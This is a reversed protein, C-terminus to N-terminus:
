RPWAFRWTVPGVVQAALVVLRNKGLRCLQCVGTGTEERGLAFSAVPHRCIARLHGPRSLLVAVGHGCCGDAIRWRLSSSTVLSVSRANGIRAGRRYYQVLAAPEVNGMHNTGHGCDDVLVRRLAGCCKFSREPSAAFCAIRFAAIRRGTAASGRARGKSSGLSQDEALLRCDPRSLDLNGHGVPAKVPLRQVRRHPARPLFLLRRDSWCSHASAAM